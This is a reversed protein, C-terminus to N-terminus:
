LGLAARNAVMNLRLTGQIGDVCNRAAEIAMERAGEESLAASHPSLIVNDIGILPNDPRIPEQEFVDLGAARVHGVRLADALALEDVIGGRSTSILIAGQKLMAMQVEGILNRTQQTLPVHISIADASALAAPLDCEKIWTPYREGLDAFPDFYSIDMGFAAARVGMEVGIKGAGILLLRRGALIVAEFSDRYGWKGTRVAHDYRHSAKAAAILLFFAHEAVSVTNASGAICVPIKADSAAGMDIADLGVGYRSVVKLNKALNLHEATLQCTRILLADANVLKEIAEPTSLDQVVDVQTNPETQLRAIGAPHINGTIVIRPM